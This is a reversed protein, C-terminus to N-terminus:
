VQKRNNKRSFFYGINGVLVLFIILLHVMSQSNMGRTATGLIGLQKEYEAAGKMGGLLGTMQKSEVYAYMKPAMVATVGGGVEKGYQANVISIWYDLTANDAVV